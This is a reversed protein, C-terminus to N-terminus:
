RQGPPLLCCPQRTTVQHLHAADFIRLWTVCRYREITTPGIFEVREHREVSRIVAVLFLGGGSVSLIHIAVCDPQGNSFFEVIARLLTQELGLM